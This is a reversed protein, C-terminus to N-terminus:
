GPFSEFSTFFYTMLGYSVSDHPQEVFIIGLLDNQLNGLQNSMGLEGLVEM